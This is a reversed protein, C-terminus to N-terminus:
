STRLIKQKIRENLTTIEAETMSPNSTVIREESPIIIERTSRIFESYNSKSIIEHGLYVLNNSSGYLLKILFQYYELLGEENKGIEKNSITGFTVEKLRKDSIIFNLPSGTYERMFSMVSKVSKGCDEKLLTDTLITASVSANEDKELSNDDSKIMLKFLIPFKEKIEYSEALIPNKTAFLPRKDLYEISVDKKLLEYHIRRYEDLARKNPYDKFREDGVVPPISNLFNDRVIQSGLGQFDKENQEVEKKKRKELSELKKELCSLESKKNPYKFRNEPLTPDIGELEEKKKKIELRVMRIEDITSLM